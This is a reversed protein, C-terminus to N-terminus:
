DETEAVDKIAVQQDLQEMALRAMAALAMGANQINLTEKVRVIADFMASFEEIPAALYEAKANKECREVAAEFEEQDTPLFSLVVEHYKPGDVSFGDVSLGSIGDFADDTLGSYIKEGLDLDEYMRELITLDDTGVVASYVSVDNSHIRLDPFTNSLARELRFSGSCCVHCDEWEAIDMIKFVQEITDLPVAGFFM